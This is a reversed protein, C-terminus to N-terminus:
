ARGILGVDIQDTLKTLLIQRSRYHDQLAIRFNRPSRDEMLLWDLTGWSLLAPHGVLGVVLFLPARSWDRLSARASQGM